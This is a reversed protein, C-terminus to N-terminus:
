SRLWRYSTLAEGHVLADTSLRQWESQSMVVGQRLRVVGRPRPLVVSRAPCVSVRVDVTDAQCHNHLRECM